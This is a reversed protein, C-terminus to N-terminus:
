VGIHTEGTPRSAGLPIAIMVLECSECDIPHLVAALQQPIPTAVRLVNAVVIETGAIWELSRSTMSAASDPRAPSTTNETLQAVRLRPGSYPTSWALDNSLIQHTVGIKGALESPHGANARLSLLIQTRTSDSLAYGFTSLADAHLSTKM